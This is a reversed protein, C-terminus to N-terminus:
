QNRTIAILSSIEAEGNYVVSLMKRDNYVVMYPITSPLFVNFFSYQYDVGVFINPLKDLQYHQCFRGIEKMGANSLFYFRVNKLQGQHRVIDETEQQCHPCEPDFYFFVCPHGTPIQESNVIHSSDLALLSFHPLAKIGALAKNERAQHCGVVIIAAMCLFSTIHSVRKNM